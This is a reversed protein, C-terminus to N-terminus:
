KSVSGSGNKRGSWVMATARSKGWLGHRNAIADAELPELKAKLEAGIVGYPTVIAYGDQVMRENISHGDGDVAVVLVRGYRDRRAFNGSIQLADGRKLLSRLYSTADVGLTLLVQRDLKTAKVDRKLKANDVDEPADIGALQLREQKGNMMVIITDGDEVAELVLSKTDAMASAAAFLLFAIFGLSPIKKNM